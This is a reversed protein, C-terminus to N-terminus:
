VGMVLLCDNMHLSAVTSEDGTVSVIGRLVLPVPIGDKLEKLVLFICLKM